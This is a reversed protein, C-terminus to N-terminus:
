ICIQHDKKKIKLPIAFNEQTKKKLLFSRQISVNIPTLLKQTTGTWDMVKLLVKCRPMALTLQKFLSNGNTKWSWFKWGHVKWVWVSVPFIQNKVGKKEYIKRGESGHQSVSSFKEKKNKTKRRKLSKKKKNMCKKEVSKWSM